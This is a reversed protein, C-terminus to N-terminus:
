SAAGSGYEQTLVGIPLRISPSTITMTSSADEVARVLAFPDLEAGVADDTEIEEM